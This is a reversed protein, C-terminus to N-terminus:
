ETRWPTKSGCMLARGAPRGDRNIAIFGLPRAFPVPCDGGIRMIMKRIATGAADIYRDSGARPFTALAADPYRLVADTEM